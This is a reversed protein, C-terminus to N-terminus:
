RVRMESVEYIVSIAKMQGYSPRIAPFLSFIPGPITRPPYGIYGEWTGVWSGVGTCGEGVGPVGRWGAAEHVATRPSTCRAM